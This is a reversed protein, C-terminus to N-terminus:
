IWLKDALFFYVWCSWSDLLFVSESEKDPLETKAPLPLCQPPQPQWQGGPGCTIQQAGDLQFGQNCTFTVGDGVRHVPVGGGSSASNAVAPTSCTAEGESSMLINWAIKEKVGAQNAGDPPVGFDWGVIRGHDTGPPNLDSCRVWVIVQENLFLDSVCLILVHSLM